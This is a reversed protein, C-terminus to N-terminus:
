CDDRLGNLRKFAAEIRMHQKTGKLPLNLSFDPHLLRLLFLAKRKLEADSADLNLGTAMRLSRCRPAKSLIRRVAADREASKDARNPSPPFASDGDISNRMGTLQARAEAEARAQAEAVADYTAEAQHAAEAQARAEFAEEARAARQAEAEAEVAEEETMPRRQWPWRWGTQGGGSGWGGVEEEEDEYGDDELDDDDDGVDVPEDGGEAGEEADSQPASGTEEAERAQEERAQEERAAQADKAQAEEEERRRQEGERHREHARQTARQEERRRELEAEWKAAFETSRRVEAAAEAAAAEWGGREADRQREKAEAAMRAALDMSARIAAEEKQRRRVADPSRAERAATAARAAARAASAEEEKKARAKAEAEIIRKVAEEKAKHAAAKAAKEAAAEAAKAATARVARAAKEKAAVKAAERKEAEKKEVAARSAEARAERAAWEEEKAAVKAQRAEEAAEVKARAAATAAARAQAEEEAMQEQQQRAARVAAARAAVAALRAERGQEEAIKRRAGDELVHISVGDSAFIMGRSEWCSAVGWLTGTRQPPEIVQLPAGELTLLQLRKAEAVLLMPRAENAGLICMGRPRRLQGPGTGRGGLTRVHAYPGGCANPAGAGAGVAAMVRAGASSDAGAFVLIQCHTQDSVYIEGSHTALGYPTRLVDSGGFSGLLAMTRADAVVVVHRAADAVFLRDRDASLCLEQPDILTSPDPGLVRRSAHVECGDARLCLRLLRPAVTRDASPARDVVYLLMQVLKCPDDKWNAYESHASTVKPPPAALVGRPEVRIPGDQAGALTSQAFNIASPSSARPQAELRILGDYHGLSSLVILRKGQSDSCCVRGDPLASLCFPQWGDERTITGILTLLTCSSTVADHWARCVCAAAAVAIPDRLYKLVSGLVAEGSLPLSTAPKAKASSAKTKTPAAKKPTAPAKKPLKGRRTGQGSRSSNSSRASVEESIRRTTWTRAEQPPGAAAASRRM